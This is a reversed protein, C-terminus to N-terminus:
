PKTRKGGPAVPGGGAAEAWAAPSGPRGHLFGQQLVLGRARMADREAPTEVGEAIVPLARGGAFALVEDLAEPRRTGERVLRRDLKVIDIPLQRLREMDSLGTGYDDVAIRVGSERLIALTRVTRALDAVRATEVIEFVVRERPLDELLRDIWGGPDPLEAELVGETVNFSVFAEPDSQLLTTAAAAARRLPPRPGGGPRVRLLALLQPPVSVEGEPTQWRLLLEFGAIRGAAVDLVPQAHYDLDGAALAAVLDAHTAM